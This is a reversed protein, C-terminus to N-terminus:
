DEEEEPLDGNADYLVCDQCVELHVWDKLSKSYGHAIYRDGPLGDCTECRHNSFFTDERMQSTGNEWARRGEAETKLGFLSLCTPCAYSFGGNIQSYQKAYRNRRDIFNM